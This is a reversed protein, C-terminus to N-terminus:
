LNYTKTPLINVELMVYDVNPIGNDSELCDRFHLLGFASRTFYYESNNDNKNDSAPLASSLRCLFYSFVVMKRLFCHNKGNMKTSILPISRAEGETVSRIQGAEGDRRQAASKSRM